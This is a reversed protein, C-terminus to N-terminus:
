DAIHTMEGPELLVGAKGRAIIAVSRPSLHRWRLLSWSHSADISM